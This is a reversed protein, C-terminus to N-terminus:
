FTPLKTVTNSGPNTVWINTGDFAIGYPGTGVAYTGVIAGSSGLLKTVTNSSNNTVWLNGAGDFLIDNPAPGAQYTKVNAGNSGLFETVTGVGATQDAVWINTGDFTVGVPSAGVPYTGVVAGSSAVLETVTGDMTNAVWMNTGDFAIGYPGAGVAYTGVMAGTSALLKTVSNSGRNTVWINTGDSAIGWPQSGVAYTGLVTGTTTLETVTNDTTNAVWINTGDFFVGDPGAGVPFTGVVAGTSAQLETVNNSGYGPVWMNTGDFAIAYPTTGVAFSTTPTTLHVITSWQATDNTTVVLNYCGVATATTDWNFLFNNTATVYSFAAAGITGNYLTTGAGSVAGACAPNPIAVISTIPTTSNDIYTNNFDQLQWAVPITAGAAFYGSDSPMYSGAPYPTMVANQLPAQFGTFKYIVLYSVSARNTSNGAQDAAHVSFTATGVASATYTVIRGVSHRHLHRGFRRGFQGPLHLETPDASEFYVDGHQPILYGGGTHDHRDAGCVVHYRHKRRLGPLQRKGHLNGTLDYTLNSGM